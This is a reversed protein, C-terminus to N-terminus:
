DVRDTWHASVASVQMMTIANLQAVVVGIVAGSMDLLPGGSNGPQIPTSIQLFRTDDKM